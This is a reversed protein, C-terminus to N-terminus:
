FELEAYAVEKTIDEINGPYEKGRLRSVTHAKLEDEPYSQILEQITKKDLDDEIHELWKDALEDPLILPMRPGAAKPNNHIKSMM